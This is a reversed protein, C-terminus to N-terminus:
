DQQQALRREGLRDDQRAAPRPAPGPRAPVRGL